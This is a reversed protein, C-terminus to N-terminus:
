MGKKADTFPKTMEVVGAKGINKVIEDKNADIAPELFPRPEMIRITLSGEPNYVTGEELWKAHPAGAAGVEIELNKVDFIISRLLEGTDIAPPEGPASSKHKKGARKYVEGTKPGKFSKLIDTRIANAGIILETTIADNFDGAVRQLDKGIQTVEKNLQRLSKVEVIETTM